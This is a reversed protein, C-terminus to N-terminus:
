REVPVVLAETTNFDHRYWLLANWTNDTEDLDTFMDPKIQDRQCSPHAYVANEKQSVIKEM